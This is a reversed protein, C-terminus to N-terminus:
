NKATAKVWPKLQECGFYDGDLFIYYSNIHESFWKELTNQKKEELARGAIKSYDDKLNERHPATRTRLYLLRVGKKGQPSMFETAKGYEGAKMKELFPLLDKDIQDITVFTGGDRSTVFGGTFKSEEEDGYKNVAEGFSMKGDMLSSRVSDLKKLAADTEDSTVPPIMLIHRIIADDGNRSVMQIIHLGFKSKIVNSISGEKLKFATNFFTPDWQKDNRNINYQGGNDKSGPDESYIKAMQEFKRGGSEIQKKIDNLQKATYSEVERSAKPYLVLKGIELESEYFALSDKPILNYYEKVEVPTIKVTELILRKKVVM